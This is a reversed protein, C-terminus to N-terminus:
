AAINTRLSSQRTQGYPSKKWEICPLSLPTSTFRVTGEVRLRRRQVTHLASGASLAWVSLEGNAASRATGPTLLACRFRGHLSFRVPLAVWTPQSQQHRLTVLVTGSPLWCRFARTHTVGCSRHSPRVLARHLYTLM